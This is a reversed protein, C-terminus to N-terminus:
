ITVIHCVHLINITFVSYIVCKQTYGIVASYVGAWLSRDLGTFFLTTSLLLMRGTGLLRATSRINTWVSVTEAATDAAWPTPRLHHEGIKYQHVDINVIDIDIDRRLCM